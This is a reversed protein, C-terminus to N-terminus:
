LCFNELSELHKDDDLWCIISLGENKLYKQFEAEKETEVLLIYFKSNSNKVLVTKLGFSKLRGNSSPTAYYGWSKRTVDYESGSGTEFTVQEDPALMIHACDQLEVTKRRGVKFTRPPINKSIKMDLELWSDLFRKNGM